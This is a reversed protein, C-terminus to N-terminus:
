RGEVFPLYIVVRVFEAFAAFEASQQEHLVKDYGTAADIAREIPLRSDAGISAGALRNYEQLLGPNDLCEILCQLFEM